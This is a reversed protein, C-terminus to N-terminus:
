CNDTYLDAFISSFTLGKLFLLASMMHFVCYYARSIADDYHKLNFLEKAIKLKDNSKKIINKIVDFPPLSGNM